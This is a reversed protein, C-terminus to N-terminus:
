GKKQDSGSSGPGSEQRSLCEKLEALIKAEELPKTLHQNMGSIRSNIIDESFANASMAIIPITGADTRKMSRIKRAADWGNMNPMMIDMFIVDYYGPQAKEFKKVAEEGDAACEVRIGNNELMFKAIEMNLENDEAILARMGEFSMEQRTGNDTKSIENKEPQGIKFPLTMTVTTGSGKKSKIEITGEMREVIKKAIALGLGAGEYKTRSTENEQSFMEFAHSIFEESMGIGNDKVRIEYLECGRQTGPYERLRVSVTGGAPTFKIANSLLNLLVQNLRTKDCYVDEDTVDMADMYLELQKAYIQGSVITKLDHLVDSLNVEVEELHLKGSEIRSMDLVDNILSLLHNSSALTKALYDKVREKDDLNSLALTTFGIIANM